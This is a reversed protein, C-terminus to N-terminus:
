GWGGWGWGWCGSGCGVQMKPYNDKVFTHFRGTGCAVEMLRLREGDRGTEAMWEHLALLATRQMADQRGFFLAETSTEYVSASRTPKINHPQPQPQPQPHQPSPTPPPQYHTRPTTTLPSSPKSTPPQSDSRAAVACSRSLVHRWWHGALGVWGGVCKTSLWGDTQYHFTNDMYYRCQNIACPIPANRDLNHLHVTQTIVCGTVWGGVWGGVDGVDGLEDGTENGGEVACESPTCIPASGLPPTPRQCAATSPASLRM